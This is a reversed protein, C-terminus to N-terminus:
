DMVNSALVTYAGENESVSITYDLVTSGGDSAGNEWSFGLTTATRDEYDEVLNIPAEPTTLIVAGNGEPSLASDGYANYAILKAYVHAGWPLNFPESRLTLIPISCEAADRIATNAGNCSTLELDYTTNDYERIYVRYGLIASGANDPATWSVKM